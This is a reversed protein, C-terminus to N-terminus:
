PTTTLKATLLKEYAELTAKDAEEAFALTAAPPLARSLHLLRPLACQRLLGVGAQTRSWSADAEFTAGVVQGLFAKYGLLAQDSFKQVM